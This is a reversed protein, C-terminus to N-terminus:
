LKHSLLAELYDMPCTAKGPLPTEPLASMKDVLGFWQLAKYVESARSGGPLLRELELEIPGLHKRSKLEMSKQLVEPWSRPHTSFPQTSFLGLAKFAALIKATGAHRLTGRFMTPLTKDLEYVELYDFSNRNALGELEIGGISSVPLPSELLLDGPIHKRKGNFVFQASNTAASLM